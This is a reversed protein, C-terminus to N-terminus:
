VRLDVDVAQAAGQLRFHLLIRTYFMSPDDVHACFFETKSKFILNLTRENKKFQLFTNPLLM